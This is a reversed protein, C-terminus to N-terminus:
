SICVCPLVRLYVLYLSLVLCLLVIPWLFGPLLAWILSEFWWLPVTKQTRGRTDIWMYRKGGIFVTSTDSSETDVHFSMEISTIPGPRTM